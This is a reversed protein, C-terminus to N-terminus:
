LSRVQSLGYQELIAALNTKAVDDVFASDRFICTSEGAPALAQHWAVLGQALEEVEEGPELGVQSLFVEVAEARGEGSAVLGLGELADLLGDFGQPGDGAVEGM